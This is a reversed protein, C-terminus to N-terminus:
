KITYLYLRHFKLNTNKKESFPVGVFANMTNSQALQM